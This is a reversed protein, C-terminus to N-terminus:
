DALQGTQSKVSWWNTRRHVTWYVNKLWRSLCVGYDQLPTTGNLCKLCTGGGWVTHRSTLLKCFRTLLIVRYRLCHFFLGQSVICESQIATKYHKRTHFLLVFTISVGDMTRLCTGVSKCIVPCSAGLTLLVFFLFTILSDQGFFFKWRKAGSM